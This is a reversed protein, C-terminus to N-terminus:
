IIKFINYRLICKNWKTKANRSNRVYEYLFDPIEDSLIGFYEKIIPRLNEFYNNM